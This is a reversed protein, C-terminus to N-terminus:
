GGPAPDPADAAVAVAHLIEELAEVTLSDEPDMARILGTIHLVARPQAGTGALTEILDNNATIGNASFLRRWVASAVEKPLQDISRLRIVMGCRSTFAPAVSAPETTTAVMLGPFADLASLFMQRLLTGLTDVPNAPALADVDEVLVLGGYEAAREFARRFRDVSPLEGVADLELPIIPCGLYRALLRVTWTKGSGPEGHLMLVTPPRYTTGPSILEGTREVWEELLRRQDDPLLSMEMASADPQRPTLYHLSTVMKEGTEADWVPVMQNQEAAQMLQEMQGVVPVDTGAQNMSVPNWARRATANFSGSTGLTLAKGLDAEPSWDTRLDVGHQQMWAGFTVPMSSPAELPIWRHHGTGLVFVHLANRTRQIHVPWLHPCDPDDSQLYARTGEGEKRDPYDPAFVSVVSELLAEETDLRTESLIPITRSTFITEPM